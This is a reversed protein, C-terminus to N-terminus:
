PFIKKFNDKTLRVNAGTNKHLTVIAYAALCNAIESANLKKKISSYRQINPTISIVPYDLSSISFNYIIWFTM